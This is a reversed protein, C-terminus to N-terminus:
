KIEGKYLCKQIHNGIYHRAEKSLKHKEEHYIELTKKTEEETPPTLAEELLDYEECKIDCRCNKLVKNRLAELEKSM